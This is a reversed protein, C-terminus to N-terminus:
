PTHSTRSGHTTAQIIDMLALANADHRQACAELVQM